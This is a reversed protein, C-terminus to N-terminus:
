IQFQFQFLPTPTLQGRQGRPEATQLGYVTECLSYRYLVKIM